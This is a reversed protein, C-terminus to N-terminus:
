TSKASDDVTKAFFQTGERELWFATLPLIKRNPRIVM